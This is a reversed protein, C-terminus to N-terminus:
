LFLHMIIAFITITSKSLQKGTGSKEFEYGPGYSCYAISNEWCEGLLYSSSVQYHSGRCSTSNYNFENYYGNSCTFRKGYTGYPICVDTAAYLGFTVPGELCTDSYLGFTAYHSNPPFNVSSVPFNSCSTQYSVSGWNSCIGSYCNSTKSTEYMTVVGLCNKNSFYTTIQYQSRALLALFVTIILIKM